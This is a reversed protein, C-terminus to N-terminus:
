YKREIMYDALEILTRKAESDPLIALAAKGKNVFGFAKNM